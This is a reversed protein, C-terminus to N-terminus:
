IYVVRYEGQKILLRKNGERDLVLARCYPCTFELSRRACTDQHNEGCGKCTWQGCCINLYAAEDRKNEFCIPCKFYVGGRELAEPCEEDGEGEMHHLIYRYILIFHATYWVHSHLLFVLQSSLSSM